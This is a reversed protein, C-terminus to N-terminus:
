IALSGLAAILKQSNQEYSTSAVSLSFDDVYSLHFSIGDPAHLPAVYIVFFLPSIPSGQPVGVSVPASLNLAGSYVLTISRDSLFYEVWSVLYRSTGLPTLRDLLIPRSVNDFGGKIDFFGTTPCLDSRHSADIKHMLRAAADEASIGPLSGAQHVSVLGKLHAAAPPRSQVLKELIKSFTDLLVIM